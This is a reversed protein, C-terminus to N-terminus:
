AETASLNFLFDAEILPKHRRENFVLDKNTYVDVVENKFHFYFEAFVHYRTQDESHM